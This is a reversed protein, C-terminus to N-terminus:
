KEFFNTPKVGHEVAASLFRFMAKAAQPDTILTLDHASILQSPDRGITTETVGDVNTTTPDLFEALIKFDIQEHGQLSDSLFKNFDPNRGKFLSPPLALSWKELEPQLKKNEVGAFPDSDKFEAETQPATENGKFLGTVSKPKLYETAGLIFLAQQWPLNGTGLWSIIASAVAADKAFYLFIEGLNGRSGLTTGSTDENIQGEYKLRIMKEYEQMAPSKGDNSDLFLNIDTGAEADLSDSFLRAEAPNLEKTIDQLLNQFEAPQLIGSGVLQASLNKLEGNLLQRSQLQKDESVSSELSESDKVKQLIMEKVFQQIKKPNLQKLTEVLAGEQQTTPYNEAYKQMDIWSLQGPSGDLLAIENLSTLLDNKEAFYATDLARFDEKSADGDAV